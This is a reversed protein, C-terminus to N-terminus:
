QNSVTGCAACMWYIGKDANSCLKYYKNGCRCTFLLDGDPIEWLQDIITKRSGCTPCEPPKDRMGIHAVWHMKCNLCACLTTEAELDSKKSNIDTVKDTM